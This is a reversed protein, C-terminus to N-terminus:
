KLVKGCADCKNRDVEGLTPLLDCRCYPSDDEPEADDLPEPEPRDGLPSLFPWGPWTRPTTPDAM